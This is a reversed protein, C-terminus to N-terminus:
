SISNDCRYMHEHVSVFLQKINNYYNQKKIKTGSVIENRKKVLQVINILISCASGQTIKIVYHDHSRKRPVTPTREKDLVFEYRRASYLVISCYMINCLAINL